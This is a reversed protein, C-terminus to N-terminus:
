RRARAAKAAKEDSRAKEKLYEFANYFELVSFEKPKANLQHALTLCLNEFQRDFQIEASESGSFRAPKSYTILATTTKEVEDTEDPRENGEVIGRLILLTRKRIIDFYEKVSSDEFIGPFYLTLEADIKKKVSHLIESLEADPADSLLEIVKCLADDSIDDCPKGDISAVLVAFALNKPSMGNQIMYVCQRLNELEKRTNETDGLMCFRRAREIRRDFDGITSGIGADILLCKQYKHFRVVPLDEICDYMEITHAGIKRTRM